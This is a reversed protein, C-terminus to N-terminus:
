IKWEFNLKLLIYSLFAGHKKGAPGKKRANRINYKNFLELEVFGGRDQCIELQASTKQCRTPLSPTVPSYIELKRLSFFLALNKTSLFAPYVVSLFLCFCNFNMILIQIKFFDFLM